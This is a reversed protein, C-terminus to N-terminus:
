ILVVFLFVKKFFKSIFQKMPTAEFTTTNSTQPTRVQVFQKNNIAAELLGANGAVHVILDIRIPSHLIKLPYPDPCPVRHNM